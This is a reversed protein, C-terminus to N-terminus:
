NETGSEIERESELARVAEARHDGQPFRRLYEALTRAAASRDGLKRQCYATSYLAEDALPNARVDAYEAVAEGCKGADRLLNGRLLHVQEARESLPHDALFRAAELLAGARDRTEVELQLIEFDVEPLLAGRPYRERYRRFTALARAADHVRRQQLRGLSYLALDGHVPDLDAARALERAAGDIDGRAELAMGRAYGDVGADVGAEAGSAAPPAMATPGPPEPSTPVERATQPGQPSAAAGQESPTASRARSSASPERPASGPAPPPATLPPDVPAPKAPTVETSPARAVGKAAEEFEGALDVTSPGALGDELVKAVADSTLDRGKTEPENSTWRGGAGVREVRGEGAVEVVGERVSVATHEGPGEEVTFLTGVVTVTYRGAQVVFPQDPSRKSVRATLAGRSLRLATGHALRELGVDSEEGLLLAAVGRIRVLARGGAETRVRDSEALAEGSQSAHWTESPRASFVGGSSVAMEVVSPADPSRSPSGWFLRLLLAAAAASSVCALVVLSRRTAGSRALSTPSAVTQWVREVARDDPAAPPLRSLLAATAREDPTQAGGETLRTCGAPPSPPASRNAKV